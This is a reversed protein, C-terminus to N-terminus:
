ADLLNSHVIVGGLIMPALNPTSLIKVCRRYVIPLINRIREYHETNYAICTESSYESSPCSYFFPKTISGGLNKKFNWFKAGIGGIYFETWVDSIYHSYNQKGMYKVCCDNLTHIRIQSVSVSTNGVDINELRGM